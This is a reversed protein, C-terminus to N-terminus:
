SPWRARRRRSQERRLPRQRELLLEGLPSAPEPLLAGGRRNARRAPVGSLGPRGDRGPPVVAAMLHGPAATGRSDRRPDLQPVEGRLHFRPRGEADRQEIIGRHSLRRLMWDVPVRARGAEFGARAVLEDTTGPTEAAKALGSTRFIGLTLRLVYEDYLTASRIFPGTFPPSIRAPLIAALERSRREAEELEVVESVPRVPNWVDFFNFWQTPKEAVLQELTGVWAALAEEESGRTITMPPLVRLAYRGDGDLTCFAPLVPVGAARALHFPGVPFPAPRGFFPILM